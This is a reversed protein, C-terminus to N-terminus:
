KTTEISSESGTSIKRRLRRKLAYDGTVWRKNLAYDARGNWKSELKTIFTQLGSMTQIPILKFKAM